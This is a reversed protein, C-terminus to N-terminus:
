PKELVSQDNNSEKLKLVEKYTDAYTKAFDDAPIGANQGADCVALIVRFFSAREKEPMAKIQEQLTM